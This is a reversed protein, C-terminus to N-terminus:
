IRGMRSTSLDKQGNIEKEVGLAIIARDCKERAKKKVFFFQFIIEEFM